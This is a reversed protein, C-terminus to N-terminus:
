QGQGHRRIHNSIGIGVKELETAWQLGPKATGKPQFPPHKGLHAIHRTGGPDKGEGQVGIDIQQGAGGQTLARHVQHLRRAQHTRSQTPTQVFHGQRQRTGGHRCADCQGQHFRQRVKADRAVKADLGESGPM